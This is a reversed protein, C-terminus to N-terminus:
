TSHEENTSAANVTKPPQCLLRRETAIRMVRTIDITYLRNTRLTVHITDAPTFEIEREGDLAIAGARTSLRRPQDAALSVVATIGVPKILGPAIPATLIQTAEHSPM